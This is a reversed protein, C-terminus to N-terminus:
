SIRAGIIGPIRGRAGATEQQLKGAQRQTSNLASNHAKQPFILGFFSMSM